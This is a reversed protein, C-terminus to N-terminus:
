YDTRAQRRIAILVPVVLWVLASGGIALGVGVPGGAFRLLALSAAGFAGTGQVALLSGTRIAGVPNALM